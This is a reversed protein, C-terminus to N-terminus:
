IASGAPSRQCEEEQDKYVDNNNRYLLLRPIISLGLGLRMSLGKMHSLLPHLTYSSALWTYLSHHTSRSLLANVPGKFQRITEEQGKRTKHLFLQWQHGEGDGHSLAEFFEVSIGTQPLFKLHEHIWFMQFYKNTSCVSCPARKPNEYPNVDRDANQWSPKFFLWQMRFCSGNKELNM